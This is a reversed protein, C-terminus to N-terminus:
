ALNANPWVPMCEQCDEKGKQLQVEVAGALIHM